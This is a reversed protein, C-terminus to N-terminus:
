EVSHDRTVIPELFDGQGHPTLVGKGLAKRRKQLFVAHRPWERHLFFLLRSFVIGASPPM